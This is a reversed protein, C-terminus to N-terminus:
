SVWLVISFTYYKILFIIDSNAISIFSMLSYKILSRLKFDGFTSMLPQIPLTSQMVSNRYSKAVVESRILQVNAGTLLSKLKYMRILVVSSLIFDLVARLEYIKM